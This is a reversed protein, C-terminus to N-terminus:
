TGTVWVLEDWLGIVQAAQLDTRARQFAKIRAAETSGDSATGTYYFRRWMEVDVVRATSPIHNSAPPEKGVEDVAKRLLDFAVRNKPSLRPPKATPQVGAAEIQLVCSTVAEDFQNRGLEVVRLSYILSGTTPMERQKTITATSRKTASDYVVTIETDVAANLLSHGRAGRAADKGLHHVLVVHAKTVARLTDLNFVLDGMDASSNEDGGAMARSLTNVIVLGVPASLGAGEIENIIADVQAGGERLNVPATIAGFPLDAPLDAFAQRYAIVRNIIGRGAEAAVYVVGAQRTPYGFFPAGSAVCVGLHVALFTKSAGSAGVILSFGGGELMGGVITKDEIQPQMDAFRILEIQGRQPQAAGNTGTHAIKIDNYGSFDPGDSM